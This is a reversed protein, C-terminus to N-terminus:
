PNKVEVNRGARRKPTSCAVSAASVSRLITTALPSSSPRIPVGWRSRGAERSAELVARDRRTRPPLPCRRLPAASRPGGPRGPAGGGRGEADRPRSGHTRQTGDPLPRSRWLSGGTDASCIGRLRPCRHVGRPGRGALVIDEQLAAVRQSPHSTTSKKWERSSTDSAHRPETPIAFRRIAARHRLYGPSCPVRPLPSTM